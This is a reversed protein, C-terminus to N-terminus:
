SLITMNVGDLNVNRIDLKNFNINHLDQRIFGHEELIGHLDLQEATKRTGLKEETRGTDIKRLM